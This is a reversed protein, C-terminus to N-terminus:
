IPPICDRLEIEWWSLTRGFIPGDIRPGGLNPGGIETADGENLLLFGM